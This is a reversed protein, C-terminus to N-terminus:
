LSCVTLNQRASDVSVQEQQGDGSFGNTLPSLASGKEQIIDDPTLLENKRKNKEQVVAESDMETDTERETQQHKRIANFLQVVGRTAIRKLRKEHDL